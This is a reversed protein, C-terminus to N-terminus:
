PQCFGGIAVDCNTKSAPCDAGTGCPILCTRDQCSGVFLGTDPTAGLPACAADDDCVRGVLGAIMQTCSAGSGPVCRRDDCRYGAPCDVGEVCALLCVNESAEGAGGRLTCDGFVTDGDRCDLSTNCPACLAPAFAVCRGRAIDCIPTGGGCDTADDCEVCVGARCAPTAGECTVSDCPDPPSYADLSGPGADVPGADPPTGRTCVGATCVESPGCTATCPRYCRGGLCVDDDDCPQEASCEVGADGVGPFSPVTNECGAIAWPASLLAAIWM